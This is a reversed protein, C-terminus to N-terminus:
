DTGLNSVAQNWLEKDDKPFRQEAEFAAVHELLFNGDDTVQVVRYGMKAYRNLEKEVDSYLSM